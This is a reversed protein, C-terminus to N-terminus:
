ETLEVLADSGTELREVPLLVHFTSGIDPESELWIRGGHSDVLTQAISLAVGTDGLGEILPNDARYKRLFVREQDELKIGPGSDIVSIHVCNTQYDEGHPGPVTGEVQSASLLVEGDVPTALSANSLLHTIVQHIADRDATITPLPNEIQLRLTLNKEQFQSVTGTIAEELVGTMAVKEPELRLQGSDLATISVLNDLLAAMRETNAKVRQLFKRQLAGIIGVSEGLLLDTYGMISSMPTRLEQTISAIVEDHSDIQQSESIATEVAAATDVLQVELAILSQNAEALQAELREVAASKEVVESQLQLVITEDFSDQGPAQDKLQQQLSRIREQAQARMQDFSTRLEEAEETKTRLRDELTRLADDVGGVNTQLAVMARSKEALQAELAEVLASREALQAQLIATGERDAAEMQVQKQVAEFELGASAQAEALETQLERISRRQQEVMDQLRDLEQRDGANDMQLRLQQQAVEVAMQAETLRTQYSIVDRAKAMLQEQLMVVEQQTVASSTLRVRLAALEIQSANRTETLERELQLVRESDQAQEQASRQALEIQEQAAQQAQEIQQKATQKALELQQELNLVTVGMEDAQKHTDQLKMEMVDARAIAESLEVQIEQAAAEGKQSADYYTAANMLAKTVLSAFRDLLTREANTLSVKAYPSGIVLVGLRHQDSHLPQIFAPGSHTIQLAKYFHRLERMNRQPTIRMQRLRGMANVMTPQEDLSLVGGEIFMQAINDYAAVIDGRHTEDDLSIIAAVDARLAMAVARAIQNASNEVDLSDVLGGLAEVVHVASPYERLLEASLETPAMEESESPPTPQSPVTTDASPPVAVRAEPEGIPVPVPVQDLPEGAVEPPEPLFTEVEDVEALPSEIPESFSAIPSALIAEAVAEPMPLPRDVTTHFDDFNLLKEVVHRYTVAALM